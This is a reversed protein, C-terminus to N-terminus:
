PHRAIWLEAQQRIPSKPILRRMGELLGQQHELLSLSEDLHRARLQVVPRGMLILDRYMTDLESQELELALAFAEETTVGSKAKEEVRTLLAEMEQLKAPFEPLFYGSDANADFAAKEAALVKAHQKEEEALGHFFHEADKEDNVSEALQRYIAAVREELLSCRTLVDTMFM